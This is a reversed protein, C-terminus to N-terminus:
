SVNEVVVEGSISGGASALAAAVNVGTAAPTTHQAEVREIANATFGPVSLTWGPASDPTVTVVEVPAGTGGPRTGAPTHSAGTL